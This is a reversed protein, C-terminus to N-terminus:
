HILPEFSRSASYGDTNTRPQRLPSTLFKIDESLETVPLDYLRNHRIRLLFSCIFLSSRFLSFRIALLPWDLKSVTKGLGLVM